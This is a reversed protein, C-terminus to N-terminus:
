DYTQFSPNICPSRYLDHKYLLEHNIWVAPHVTLCCPEEMCISGRDTGTPPISPLSPRVSPLYCNAPIKTCVYFLLLKNISLQIGRFTTRNIVYQTPQVTYLYLITSPVLNLSSSLDTHSSMVPCGVPLCSILQAAVLSCLIVTFVEAAPSRNLSLCEIQPNHIM